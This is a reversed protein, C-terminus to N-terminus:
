PLLEGQEIKLLRLCDRLMAHLKQNDVYRWREIAKDNNFTKFYDELTTIMTRRNFIRLIVGNETYDYGYAKITEM